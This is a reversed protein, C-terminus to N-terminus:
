QWAPINKKIKRICSFIDDFDIAPRAPPITIHASYKRGQSFLRWEAVGGSTEGRFSTQPILVSHWVSSTDSYLDPYHKQNTSYIQKLWDSASDWNCENTLRWKAPFGTTADGFTPQKRPPPSRLLVQEWVEWVERPGAALFLALRESIAGALCAVLKM